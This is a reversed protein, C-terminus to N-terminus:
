EAMRSFIVHNRAATEQSGWISDRLDDVGAQTCSTGWLVLGNMQKLNQLHILGEDTVKPGGFQLSDLEKFQALNKVGENTLQSSRITLSRLKKLSTLKEVDENTIEKLYPLHLFQLNPMKALEDFCKPTIKGDSISVMRLGKPFKKVGEDSINVSVFEVDRLNKLDRLCAMSKDTIKIPRIMTVRELKPCKGIFDIFDDDTFTGYNFRVFRLDPLELSELVAGDVSPLWLMDLGHLDSVLSYDNGKWQQLDLHSPPPVSQWQRFISYYIGGKMRIAAVAKEHRELVEPSVEDEAMLEGTAIIFLGVVMLVFRYM